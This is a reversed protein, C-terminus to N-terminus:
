FIISSNGNRNRLTFRSYVAASRRKRSGNAAYSRIPRDPSILDSWMKLVQSDESNDAGSRLRPVFDIESPSVERRRHKSKLFGLSKKKPFRPETPLSKRNKQIEKKTRLSERKNGKREVDLDLESILKQEQLSYKRTRTRIGTEDPTKTEPVSTKRTPRKGGDATSDPPKRPVPKVLNNELRNKLRNARASTATQIPRFNSEDEIHKIIERRRIVEEMAPTLTSNDYFVPSSCHSDSRPRKGPSNTGTSNRLKLVECMAPTPNDLPNEKEKKLNVEVVISKKKRQERKNGKSQDNAANQSKLLKEPNSQLVKVWDFPEHSRLVLTNVATQQRTMRNCNPQVPVCPQRIATRPIKVPKLEVLNETDSDRIRKKSRLKAPPSNFNLKGDDAYGAQRIGHRLLSKCYNYDPKTDFNLSLVYKLFHALVAPPDDGFCQKLFLPINSMCNNKEQAVREPDSMDDEWPLWGSLWHVMNYGLVELDGRRSHAGVHADRSTYELTGDHAKRQDPNYEKHIGLGDVYRCALGYDLLYVHDEDKGYGLLLNSGKIDAHIYGHSHIYELIDMIQIGLTLVTKIHFRRKNKIFLKGLDTGFRKLILFRYREELYQHSGFAIYHPMGLHKMGRDKKWKEVMEEKAVRIYFNMEVFLPGSKHPEIKVAYMADQSVTRTVDSSVLYIEGFGGAGVPKGVRWEEKTIDTLVEGERITVPNYSASANRKKQSAPERKSKGM